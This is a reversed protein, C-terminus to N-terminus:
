ATQHCMCNDATSSILNVNSDPGSPKIWTTQNGGTTGQGMQGQANSGVAWCNNASDICMSSNGSAFVAKITTTPLHSTVNIPSDQNTSGTDGLQSDADTGWAWVQNNTLIAMTHGNVGDNSGGLTLDTCTQGAVPVINTPTTQDTTTGNGIQGNYNAGWMWIQGNVDVAGSHQNGSSISAIAAGGFATGNILVPIYTCKTTGNGLQGHHNDGFTWLAGASTLMLCHAAGGQVAVLNAPATTMLQPIYSTVGLTNAPKGGWFWLRGLTDIAFTTADAEGIAKIVVGPPLLPNVPTARTTTTGDGLQGYTNPGWLWMQGATDLAIQHSNACAIATIPGTAIATLFAAPTSNTSGGSPLGWQYTTEAM